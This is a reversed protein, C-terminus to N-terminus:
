KKDLTSHEGKLTGTCLTKLCEPKNTLIDAVVPTSKSLFNDAQVSM